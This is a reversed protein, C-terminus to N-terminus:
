DLLQDLRLPPTFSEVPPSCRSGAADFTTQLGARDNVSTGGNHLAQFWPQLSQPFGFTPKTLADLRGFVTDAIFGRDPEIQGANHRTYKGCRKKSSDGSKLITGTQATNVPVSLGRCAAQWRSPTVAFAVALAGQTAAHM